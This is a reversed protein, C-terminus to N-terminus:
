NNKKDADGANEEFFQIRKMTKSSQHIDNMM